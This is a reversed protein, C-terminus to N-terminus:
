QCSLNALNNKLTKFWEKLASSRDDCFDTWQTGCSDSQSGVEVSGDDTVLKMYGPVMIQSCAQNASTTNRYECVQGASLLAKLSALGEANLCYKGMLQNQSTMQQVVGSQWDISFQVLDLLTYTKGSQNMQVPMRDTFVLNQIQSDNLDVIVKQGAQDNQTVTNAPNIEDAYPPKQCNQYCFLLIFMPVFVCLATKITMIPRGTLTM